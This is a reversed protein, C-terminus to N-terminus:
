IRKLEWRKLLRKHGARAEKETSYKECYLEHLAKKSNFLRVHFILLIGKKYIIHHNEGVWVTSIFGGWSLEDQQIIRYEDDACLEIYEEHTIEKGKKNYYM